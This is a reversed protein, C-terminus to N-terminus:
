WIEQSRIPPYQLILPSSAGPSGARSSVAPPVAVPDKKAAEGHRLINM